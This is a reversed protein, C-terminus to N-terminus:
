LGVPGDGDGRNLHCCDVPIQVTTKSLMRSRAFLFNSPGPLFGARRLGAGWAAHAQNSVIITAGRAKLFRTAAHVVEGAHEPLALGDVIAGLRCRGFYRHNEWENVTALVWGICSDHKVIKLRHYAAKAAPFLLNLTRADRVAIFRYAPACKEWLVDAWDGFAAEPVCRLATAADPTRACWAQVSRAGLWGLGSFAAADLALRHLPGRRLHRINRLFHFPSCIHMYFPVTEISGGLQQLMQALPEKRSGIGLSFLLPQRKIANTLLLVGTMTYAPDLVGESLPLHYHALHEITTGIKFDQHKLIYGGRVVGGDVALFYEQFPRGDTRPPLWKSIAREPFRYPVGGAQLRSNFSKVAAIHGPHYPEIRM